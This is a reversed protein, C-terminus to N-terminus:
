NLENELHNGPSYSSAVVERQELIAISICMLSLFDALFEIVKGFIGSCHSIVTSRILRLLVQHISLDDLSQIVPTIEISIKKATELSKGSSV